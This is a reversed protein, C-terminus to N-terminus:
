IAPSRRGRSLVIRQRGSEDENWAVFVRGQGASVVRPYSISHRRGPILVPESVRAEEDIEVFYASAPSWGDDLVPDRGQFVLLARGGGGTSLVPHNADLIRGSVTRAPSFSEGGDGSWALRVGRDVAESGTYWALYLRRGVRLMSAGSHPCGRIKWGDDAVRIPDGFRLGGDDSIAVAIDRESDEFVHRWSVIVRGEDGFAVAPRCCPCVGSAVPVNPGFSAGRDSSRALYVSSRGKQRDGPHRGDLWVAYIEGAPSVSMSSFANTSPETKDTVPVPPEFSRGFNLSRALVLETARGRGLQEWLAYIETRGFALTPSNEGHSSVVSEPASVPVPGAFSDGGSHSVFLGLQPAAEEAERYVGLLYLAGSARAGLRADRSQSFHGLVARAQSEFQFPDDRAPSDAAPSQCSWLTTSTVLLLSFATRKM